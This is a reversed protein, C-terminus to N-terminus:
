EFQYSLSIGYTRPPGVHQMTWLDTFTGPAVFPAQTPDGLTYKYTSYEEDALNRGYLAVELTGGQIEINTGIRANILGYAELKNDLRGALALHDDVWNGDLQVYARNSAVPFDYRVFGSLSLEPANALQAGIAPRGGPAIPTPNSVANDKIKTDLAAVSFRTTLGDTPVWTLELEAGTIESKAINTLVTNVLTGIGSVFDVSLQQDKYDYYFAAGNLSLTDTGYKFGAEVANVEEPKYPVYGEPAISVGGYFGLAKSGRSVNGYLLLNDTVNWDVGARWTVQTDDKSGSGEAIIGNSRVETSGGVFAYYNILTNFASDLDAIGYYTDLVECLPGDCAPSLSSTSTTYELKDKSVRAAATLKVNDTVNWETHVFAATTKVNQTSAAPVLLPTTPDSHLGFYYLAFGIGDTGDLESVNDQDTDSYYLGVIWDVLESENSTLRLEQTLSELKGGYNANQIRTESGAFPIVTLHDMDDYGTVSTLTAFGLNANVTLGTSNLTKDVYSRNNGLLVDFHGIDAQTGTYSTYYYFQMYDLGSYVRPMQQESKDRGWTHRLTAEVNDGFDAAVQLRAAGRDLAGLTKGPTLLDEQYGDDQDTKIGSVRMRLNDTLPGGVAGEFSRYGYDGFDGSVYGDFDDTPAKTYFSVAGGTTNQGYLTGQPGKLVEVRDMDFLSFSLMATIAKPVEDVYVAVGPNTNLNFDNVGIGRIMIAPQSDGVTNNIILGPTQAALDIPQDWGLQRMTDGSFATVSLGLDSATAERKQATVTIEEIAGQAHAVSTGMALVCSVGLAVPKRKFEM